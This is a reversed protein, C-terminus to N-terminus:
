WVSIEMRSVDYVVMDGGGQVILNSLKRGLQGLANSHALIDPDISMDAAGM